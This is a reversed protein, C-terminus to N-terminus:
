GKRGGRNRWEKAIMRLAQWRSVGHWRQVQELIFPGHLDADSLYKISRHDPRLARDWAGPESEDIM